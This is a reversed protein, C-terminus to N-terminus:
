HCVLRCENEAQKKVQFNYYIININLNSKSSDRFKSNKSAKKRALNLILVVAILALNFM